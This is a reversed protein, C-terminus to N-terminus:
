QQRYTRLEAILHRIEESQRETTQSLSQAAALMEACIEFFQDATPGASVQSEDNM